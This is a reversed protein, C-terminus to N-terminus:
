GVSFFAIVFTAYVHFTLCIQKNVKDLYRPKLPFPLLSSNTSLTTVIYFIAKPSPWIALHALFITTGGRTNICIKLFHLRGWRVTQCTRLGTAFRSFTWNFICLLKWNYNIKLSSQFHCVKFSSFQWNDLSLCIYKLTVFRSSLMSSFTPLAVWRRQRCIMQKPKPQLSINQASAVM